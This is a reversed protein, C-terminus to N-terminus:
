DLGHSCAYITLWLLSVFMCVMDFLILSIYYVVMNTCFTPYYPMPTNIIELIYNKEGLFDVHHGLM